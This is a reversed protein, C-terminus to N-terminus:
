KDTITSIHEDVMSDRLNDHVKGFLYATAAMPIYWYIQSPKATFLIMTCFFMADKTNRLVKLREFQNGVTAIVVLIYPVISSIMFVVLMALFGSTWLLFKTWTQVWGHIDDIYPMFYYFYFVVLIPVAIQKLYKM